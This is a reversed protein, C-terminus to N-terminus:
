KMTEFSCVTASGFLTLSTIRVRVWFQVEGEEGGGGM